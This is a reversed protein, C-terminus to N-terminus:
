GTNQNEPAAQQDASDIEREAQLWDGLEAGPAFGRQQALEYARKSIRQWRDPAAAGPRTNGRQVNTRVVDPVLAEPVSEDANAPRNRRPDVKVVDDVLSRNASAM